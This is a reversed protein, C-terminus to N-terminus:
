NARQVLKIVESYKPRKIEFVAPYLKAWAFLVQTLEKIERRYPTPDDLVANHLKATFEGFSLSGGERVINYCWSFARSNRFALVSQEVSFDGRDIGLLEIDHDITSSEENYNAQLQSLENFPLEHVWIYNNPKELKAQVRESWNPIDTQVSIPIRSFEQSILSFLEDDVWTVSNLYDSLKSFEAKGAAVCVGFEDNHRSSLGLGSSTANASGVLVQGDICYVKAHLGSSIGFKIGNEHCFRYCSLDSVKAILDHALWRTVVSIKQVETNEYIWKLANEKLFASLVIVETTASNLQEQLLDRFEYTSLFM